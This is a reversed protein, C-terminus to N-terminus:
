SPPALLIEREKTNNARRLPCCWLRKPSVVGLFSPLACSLFRMLRRIRSIRLVVRGNIGFPTSKTNFGRRDAISQSKRSSRSSIRASSPASFHDPGKAPLKSQGCQLHILERNGGPQRGRTAEGWGAGFISGFSNFPVAQKASDSARGRSQEAAVGQMM